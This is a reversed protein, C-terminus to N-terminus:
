EMRYIAGEYQPIKEMFILNFDKIIGIKNLKNICDRSFYAKYKGYGSREMKMSTGVGLNTNTFLLCYIDNGQEDKKALLTVYKYLEKVSAITVKNGVITNLKPVEIEIIDFDEIGM